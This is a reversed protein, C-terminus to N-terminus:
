HALWRDMWGAHQHRLDILTDFLAPGDTPLGSYEWCMLFKRKLDAVALPNELHGSARRVRPGELVSGDKLEVSVQDWPAYQKMLEDYEDTLEVEVRKMLAGIAPDAVGQDSVEFLGVSQRVLACAITFQISFKGELGSSPQDAHLIAKQTKGIRVVVRQVDAVDFKATQVLAIASDIARHTCYCAPYKKISVGEEGIRWQRGLATAPSVADYQGHQSVAALFGRPHELVNASSLMGNEALQVAVIGARAAQGAHFPKVMSGFNAVLGCASSAAVGIANVVQQANLGKLRAIACAAAIAGYLGTPHWGREHLQGQERRALESWVEYGAVYATLMEPGSLKLPQAQALIAPVLITSRHGGADDFDLAHGATANILAAQSVSVRRSGFYLSSESRSQDLFTRELVDVVPERSGAMMVGAVDAFGISAIDLAVEPLDEYRLNAVFSAISETLGSLHDRETM